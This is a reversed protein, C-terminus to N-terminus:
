GLSVVDVGLGRYLDPSDTVVPRGTPWEACPRGADVAHAAEWPLGEAILSGLVGLHNALGSRRSVAAALCLAPAFVYRDPERHAAAVLASVRQHGAGLALLAAHDLVVGIPEIM